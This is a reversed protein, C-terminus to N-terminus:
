EKLFISYFYTAFSIINLCIIVIMSALDKITEGNWFCLIIACVMLPIGSIITLLISKVRNIVQSCTYVISIVLAIAYYILLIIFSGIGADNPTRGILFWFYAYVTLFLIVFVVAAFIFLNKRKM